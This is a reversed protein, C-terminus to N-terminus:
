KDDEKPIPFFEEIQEFAENRIKNLDAKPSTAQTIVLNILCGLLLRTTVVITKDMSEIAKNVSTMKEDNNM